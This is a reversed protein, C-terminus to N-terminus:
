RHSEAALATMLQMFGIMWARSDADAWEIRLGCQVCCVPKKLRVFRPSAPRLVSHHFCCLDGIVHYPAPPFVLAPQIASESRVQPNGEQAGAFGTSDNALLV